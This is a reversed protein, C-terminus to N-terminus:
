YLRSLELLLKPPLAYPPHLFEKCLDHDLQPFLPWQFPAAMVRNSSNAKHQHRTHWVFNHSKQILNTSHLQLNEDM